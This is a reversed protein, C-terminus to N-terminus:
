TRLRGDLGLDIETIRALKRLLRPSNKDDLTSYGKEEFLNLNILQSSVTFTTFLRRQM